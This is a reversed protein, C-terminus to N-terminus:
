LIEEVVFGTYFFTRAAQHLRQSLKPLPAIRAALRGPRHRPALMNWYALRGGRTGVRAVSDFVADSDPESLYEFVDSFNFRDISAPVAQGLYTQVDALRLELRDLNARIRAFNEERLAHPLRDGFHGHVIWHLYANDAPDLDVLAHEVM